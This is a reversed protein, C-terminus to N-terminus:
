KVTAGELLVDYRYGYGFDKDVVVTGTMTVIDGIKVVADTTVALDADGEKGSGDQLHIWNKGMIKSSYKVVKGRVTVPKGSLAKRQSIVDVLAKGGEPPAIKAPKMAALAEAKGCAPKDVVPATVSPSKTVNLIAEAFLIEPFTRNLSKSHFSKMMMGSQVEVNDGVKVEFTPAAAWKEGTGDDLAIYTYRGANMTQTVKGKVSSAATPQTGAQASSPCTASAMGSGGSPCGGAPIGAKEESFGASLCALFLGTGLILRKM